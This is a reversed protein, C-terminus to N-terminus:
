ESIFRATITVETARLFQEGNKYQTGTSDFWGLFKQGPIVGTYNPFDIISGYEIMQIYPKPLQVGSVESKFTVKIRNAKWNAHLYLSRKIGHTNTLAKDGTMIEDIPKEYWGSFVYGTKTPIPFYIPNGDPEFLTPVKTNDSFNGGNLNYDITFESVLIWKAYITISENVVDIDFEWPSNGSSDKFWGMFEYGERVPDKPVELKTGQNIGKLPPISNKDNGYTYYIVQYSDIVIKKDSCSVLILSFALLTLISLIKKM